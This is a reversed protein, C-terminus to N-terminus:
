SVSYECCRSFPVGHHRWLTTSQRRQHHRNLCGEVRLTLKILNDLERPLDVVALEDAIAHDLGKLFRARLAGENWGCAAALTQFQIAYDTVSSKRQSLHSLQAAAEDGQGSRDFLKALEQHFDEFLRVVLLGLTGYLLEGNAPAAWSFHSFAM